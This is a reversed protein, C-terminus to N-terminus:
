FPLGPMGGGLGGALPGMKEQTLDAANHAADRVAAVILDQLTEVDDADVAKPDITLSLLEGSGTMKASVLGGGASGEVETEALEAQAAMLQKQMQQAQKMLQQM